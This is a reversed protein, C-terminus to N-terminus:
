PASCVLLRPDLCNSFTTGTPGDGNSDIEVSGNSQYLIQATGQPLTVTITGATPCIRGSPVALRPNTAVTAAGGFCPSSMRGSLDFLTPDASDDVDMRLNDFTM